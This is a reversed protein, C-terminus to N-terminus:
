SRKKVIKGGTVDGLVQCGPFVIVEGKGSEFHISGNILTGQRLEIIQKGKYGTDKKVTIAELRSSTFLAKQSLISLSNQFTTRTTQLSGMVSAANQITSDKLNAEGIIDLMGIQADQAILSGTLHIEQATTGNLKILGTGDIAELEVQGYQNAGTVRMTDATLASAILSLALLALLLPRLKM